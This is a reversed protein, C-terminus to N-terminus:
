PERKLGSRLAQLVIGISGGLNGVSLSDNRETLCARPMVQAGAQM